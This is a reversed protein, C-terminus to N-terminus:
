SGLMLLELSLPITIVKGNKSFAKMCDWCCGNKMSFDDMAQKNNKDENSSSGFVDSSSNKQSLSSM